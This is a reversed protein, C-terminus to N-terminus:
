KINRRKVVVRHCQGTCGVHGCKSCVDGFEAEDVSSPFPREHRKAARVELALIALRVHCLADQTYLSPTQNDVYRMRDAGARLVEQLTTGPFANKNGPYKKGKRKVFVIESAAKPEPDDLHRVAYVHGPDIVRM